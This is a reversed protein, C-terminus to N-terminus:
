AIRRRRPQLPMATHGAEGVLKGAHEQDAKAELYGGVSFVRDLINQTAVWFPPTPLVVVATLRAAPRALSPWRTSSTSRSGCPLAVMPAPMLLAVRADEM